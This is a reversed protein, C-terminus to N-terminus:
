EREGRKGEGNERQIVSVGREKRYIIEGGGGGWEKKGRKSETNM